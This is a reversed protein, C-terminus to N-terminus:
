RLTLVRYEHPTKAKLRRFQRHFNTLTNFGSEYAIDSVSDRTEALLRCAHGIRIENLFDIYTKQTRKKFYMCFSPVSMSALAAVTELTITERFSEFSYQFVKDLRQQEAENMEWVPRTSLATWERGGAIIDLCTGLGLIRGIGERIELERILPELTKRTDGTMKLGQLATDLLQRILKAEPLQLFATGWFDELFQVVLASAIGDGTKQFTHPLNSGLLFVDGTQFDGMANGIFFRGGGETFLILEIEPHQHWGVEFNPTRFTKAVYSTHDALPLKQIFATKM